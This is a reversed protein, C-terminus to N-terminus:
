AALRITQEGEFSVWGAEALKQAHETLETLNYGTIVSLLPLEHSGGMVNGAWYSPTKKVARLYFLMAEELPDLSFDFPPAFDPQLAESLIPPSMSVMQGFDLQAERNVDLARQLLGANWAECGYMATLEVDGEFENKTICRCAAHHVIVPEGTKKNTWSRELWVVDHRQGSKVMPIISLARNKEDYRERRALRWFDTEEERFFLSTAAAADEYYNDPQPAGIESM